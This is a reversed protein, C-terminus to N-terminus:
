KKRAEFAANVAPRAVWGDYPVSSQDVGLYSLMMDAERIAARADALAALASVICHACPLGISRAHGANECANLLDSYSKGETAAQQQAWASLKSM